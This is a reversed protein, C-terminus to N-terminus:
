QTECHLHETKFIERQPFRVDIVASFIDLMEVVSFNIGEVEWQCPKERLRIM